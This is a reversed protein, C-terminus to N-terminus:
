PYKVVTKKRKGENGFGSRFKTLATQAANNPGAHGRVHNCLNQQFAVQLFM